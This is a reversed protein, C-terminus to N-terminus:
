MVNVMVIWIVQALNLLGEMVCVVSIMPILEVMRVLLGPMVRMVSAMVMQIPAM